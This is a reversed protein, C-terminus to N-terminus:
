EMILLQDQELLHLVRTLPDGDALDLECRFHVNPETGDGDEGPRCEIGLILNTEGFEDIYPGRANYEVQEVGIPVGHPESHGHGPPESSCGSGLVALPLLFLEKRV